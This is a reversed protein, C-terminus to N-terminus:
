LKFDVNVILKVMFAAYTPGPRLVRTHMAKSKYCWWEPPTFPEKVECQWIISNMAASAPNHSAWNDYVEKDGKELLELGVNGLYYESIHMTFNKNYQLGDSRDVENVPVLFTDTRDSHLFNVVIYDSVGFDDATIVKRDEPPQDANFEDEPVPAEEVYDENKLLISPEEVPATSTEQEPTPTDEPTTKEVFTYDEM